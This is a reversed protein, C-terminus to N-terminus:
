SLAVEHHARERDVQYAPWKHLYMTEIALKLIDVQIAENGGQKEKETWEWRKLVPWFKEYERDRWWWRQQLQQTFM